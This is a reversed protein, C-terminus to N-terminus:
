DGDVSRESLVFLIQVRSELSGATLYPFFLAVLQLFTPPASEIEPPSESTMEGPKAFGSEVSM